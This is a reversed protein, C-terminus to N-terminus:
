EGSLKALIVPKVRKRESKSLRGWALVFEALDDDECFFYATPVRLAQALKVAIGFPPEHTGTEYRSMRASATGEDLGIEVGLQDQPIGAQRRAERLRRGFVTGPEKKTM